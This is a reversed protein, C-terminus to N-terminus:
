GGAPPAPPSPDSGGPPADPASLPADPVPGPPGTGPPGMGPPWPSPPTTAAPAGPSLLVVLQAGLNYVGAVGLAILALILGIGVTVTYYSNLSTTLYNSVEGGLGGAGSPLLGSLSGFSANSIRDLIQSSVQGQEVLLLIVAAIASAAVALGRLAFRTLSLLLGLLMAALAALLLPQVGIGGQGAPVATPISSEAEALAACGSPTGGGASPASGAALNVGSYTAITYNNLSNLCGTLAQTESSSV